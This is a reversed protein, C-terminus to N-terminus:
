QVEFHTLEEVEMLQGVGRLDPLGHPVLHTLVEACNANSFEDVIKLM